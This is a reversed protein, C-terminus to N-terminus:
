DVSRACRFGSGAYFFEPVHFVRNTTTPPEASGVGGGRVVRNSGEPEEWASGDDPAGDYGEHYWDQVWEIANGALDCIGQETNSDPRSCPPQVPTFCPEQSIVMRDCDPPEDGWPYLRDRGQSRAAYEWEAESPLRAGIHECYDRATFWDVCVATSDPLPACTDSRPRACAGATECARLQKDEVETQLLEFPRVTVEHVPAAREDGSTGMAFSGGCVTVWCHGEGDCHTTGAPAPCPPPAQTCGITLSLLACIRIM